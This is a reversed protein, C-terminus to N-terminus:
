STRIIVRDDDIVIVDFEDTKFQKRIDQKAMMSMTSFLFDKKMDKSTGSLLGLTKSRGFVMEFSKIAQKAIQERHVLFLAKQSNLNRLAFAAAYTKGTGTASILLAKTAKEEQLKKLNQIFSVQMANPELMYQQISTIKTERAIRKQEEYIETYTDIWDSLPKTSKSTWLKEFEDMIAKTYEGQNTSVIKTNWEKNRTLASLTMNSSGIIIKYVEAERFIYGKTHFGANEEGVCYMRLEINSLQSLKQLAKPESFTLYDTTMIKGQIGRQELEKLTQLLPTIGSMTIFAVSIFFEECSSLEQEISALVKKGVKYDNSIFQPRYALNSQVNYDVYATQFGLQMEEM